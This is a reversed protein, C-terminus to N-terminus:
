YKFLKSFTVKTVRETISSPVGANIISNRYIFPVDEENIVKWQFASDVPRQECLNFNWRNEFNIKRNEM